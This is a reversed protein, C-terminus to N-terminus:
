DTYAVRMVEDITTLGELAKNIGDDKLTIMGDRVAQAKILDASSKKNILERIKKTVPMVEYIGTRGRYGTQGCYQCGEGYSLVVPIDDAIGMYMRQKANNSLEYSKKCKPCILRVLRQAVVGLVSSAVLFPEIGMDILRTIAGAADNTHLTSLVLHGTTASRVAIEATEKDRIEGVMIVDPDQRLISRLGLAFTLGAKSHVQTQNIGELVYEVPDEITVINKERSNIENLVAYLTTTKGCGTPGTVLLMGNSYKLINKFAKYNKEDFGLQNVKLLNNNKDLLRIVAKEGFINPLTSVRLDVINNKYQIHFRGDQPKRKEAIDMNSLIKLRSILPQGTKKPVTMVERLMGDIRYRIRLGGEFPEVHIDSANENVAQLIISDVLKIVPSENLATEDLQKFRATESDVYDPLAEIEKSAVQLDSIGAHKKIIPIKAM